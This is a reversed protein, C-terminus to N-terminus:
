THASDSLNGRRGYKRDYAAVCEVGKRAGGKNMLIQKTVVETLLESGDDGDLDLFASEGDGIEAAETFAKSVDRFARAHTNNIYFANVIIGSQVAKKLEDEFYVPESFISNSWSNLLRKKDTEERTNPAADGILIVQSIPEKKHEENAHWMGIEVAEHMGHGMRVNVSRLFSRLYEPSNSWPSYDLLHERSNYNRYVCFQLEFGATLGLETLIDNARAFMVNVKNKAKDILSTMSSTGDMLVMTRSSDNGDEVGVFINRKLLYNRIFDNNAKDILCGVFKMSDLHDARIDDVYKMDDPYQKAFYEGRYRDLEAYYVGDARMKAIVHEDIQYKALDSDLLVFSFSGVNGQRASRGMIQTEESQIASFFTQIVHVGGSDQLRDDYCIFDTGRGFAKTLLTVRGSTVASTIYGDKVSPSTEENIIFKEMGLSKCARSEYFANLTAISEFFVLVARDYGSSHRLRKTIEDAIAIHYGGESEIKVDEINNGRFLLKNQGYVSPIISRKRINYVHQLLETEKDSLTELTGSVGLIHDYMKPVEAYSFTGCDIPFYKHKEIASDMVISKERLNFYQFITKFGYTRTFSVGDQDKYGVRGLDIICDHTAYSRVEYCMEKVMNEMLRTWSPFASVLANYAESKQINSFYLQRRHKRREWVHEFMASITPHHLKAVPHYCSGYFDENLFVDVEDILLVRPRTTPRHMPLPVLPLSNASVASANMPLKKTSSPEIMSEVCSRIDGRRNIFSECLKDFTGYRICKSVGFAAFLDRFDSYDRKSLYESYCACDVDRGTLSLIIATGALTVSKGEGTHIQALHNQIVGGCDIGLLRCMAIIQACHPQLLETRSFKVDGNLPEKAFQKSLTWYSFVYAMLKKYKEDQQVSGDAAIGHARNTIAELFQSRDTSETLGRGDEVIKWYFNDIDEYIRKFNEKDIDDGRLVNKGGSTAKMKGLVDDIGFTLTIQNRAYIQYDKFAEHEQLLRKAMPNEHTSLRLSLLAVRKADAMLFRCISANIKEDVSATSSLVHVGITKMGLLADVVDDISGN